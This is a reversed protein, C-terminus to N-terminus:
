AEEESEISQETLPAVTPIGGLEDPVPIGCREFSGRLTAKQSEVSEAVTEGVGTFQPFQVKFSETGLERELGQLHGLIRFQCMLDEPDCPSTEEDSM